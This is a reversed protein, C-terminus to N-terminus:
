GAVTGLNRVIPDSIQPAADGLVGYRGRLAESRETDKHRVLAGIALHGDDEGIADLGEIRNLDVLARPSAFRLKMLPILSQGGALLKAEDGYRELLAIAEEVSAPAYYEFSAPYM